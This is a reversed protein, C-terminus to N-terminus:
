TGSGGSVVVIFTGAAAVFVGLIGLVSYMLADKLFRYKRDHFIFWLDLLLGYISGVAQFLGLVVSVRLLFMQTIDMFEQATGIGYLFVTLVCLIFFFFVTRKVLIAIIPKKEPRFIQVPSSRYGTGPIILM